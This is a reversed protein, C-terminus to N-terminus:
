DLVGYELSQEVGNMKRCVNNVVKAILAISVLTRQIHIGFGMNDHSKKRIRREDPLIWNVM